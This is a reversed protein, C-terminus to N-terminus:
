AQESRDAAFPVRQSFRRGDPFHGRLWARDCGTLKRVEEHSLDGILSLAVWEKSPLNVFELGAMPRANPGAQWTSRDQMMKELPPDGDFVIVVDRLGTTTEKENFFKVNLFYRAAGEDGWAPDQEADDRVLLETPIPLSHLTVPEESGSFVWLEIPEMKCRVKGWTRVWREGFLGLAGGLLTFVGGVVGGAIGGIIAAQAAPSLGRLLAEVVDIVGRVGEEVV